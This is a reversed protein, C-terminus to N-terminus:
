SSEAGLGNSAISCILLKAEQHLALPPGPFRVLSTGLLEKGQLSSGPLRLAVGHAFGQVRAERLLSGGQLQTEGAEPIAEAAELSQESVLTVNLLTLLELINCLLHSQKNSTFPAYPLLLLAGQELADRLNTGLLRTRHLASGELLYGLLARDQVRPEEGALTAEGLELPMDSVDAGVISGTAAPMLEEGCLLVGPLRLAFHHHLADDILLHGALLLCRDQLIVERGDIGTHNM